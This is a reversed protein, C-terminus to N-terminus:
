LYGEIVRCAFDAGGQRACIYASAQQRVAKKGVPHLVVDILFDAVEKWSSAQHVIGADFIERGVWSFNAWYPGIVAPVGYILPELFNQGGLPALSGGIFAAASKQYALSLEGFVDWLIVFGDAIPANLESRLRWPIALRNLTQRWHDVRHMHRPFLGIVAAPLRRLIKQIMDATVREEEQRISGLILFNKRSPLLLDL